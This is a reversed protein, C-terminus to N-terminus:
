CGTDERGDLVEQMAEKYMKTNKISKALKDAAREIIEERYKEFVDGLIRGAFDSLRGNRNDWGRYFLQKEVDSQINGMITKEANEEIRKRIAEDDVSIAFQVIHEM